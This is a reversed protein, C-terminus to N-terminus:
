PCHNTSLVSMKECEDTQMRRCIEAISHLKQPKRRSLAETVLSLLDELVKAPMEAEFRVLPVSADCGIAALMTLFFTVRHSTFCWSDGM